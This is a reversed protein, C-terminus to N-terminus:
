QSVRGAGSLFAVVRAEEGRQGIVLKRFLVLEPVLLGAFRASWSVSLHFCAASLGGGRPSIPVRRTPCHEMVGPWVTGLVRVMERSHQGM